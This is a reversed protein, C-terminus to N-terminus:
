THFPSSQPEHKCTKKTIDNIFVEFAGWISVTAQKLLEKSAALTPKDIMYVLLIETVRNRLEQQNEPAYIHEHFKDITSNLAAGIEEKPYEGSSPDTKLHRMTEATHISQFLRDNSTRKATVYPFSTASIISYISEQLSYVVDVMNIESIEIHEDFIDEADEPDYVLFNARVIEYNSMEFGKM